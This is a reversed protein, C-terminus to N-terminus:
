RSRGFRDIEVRGVHLLQRAQLQGLRLDEGDELREAERFPPWTCGGLQRRSTSPLASRTSSTARMAPKSLNGVVGSGSTGRATPPTSVARWALARAARRASAAM